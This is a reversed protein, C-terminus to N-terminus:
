FCPLGFDLPVLISNKMRDNPDWSADHIGFLEMLLRSDIANFIWGEPLGTESALEQLRVWEDQKRGEVRSKLAAALKGAKQKIDQGGLQGTARLGELWGEATLDYRNFGWGTVCGRRELERWTTPLIASFPQMDADIDAEYYRRDSPVRELMLRLALYYNERRDEASETM